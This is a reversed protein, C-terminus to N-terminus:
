CGVCSFDSASNTDTTGNRQIYDNTSGDEFSVCTNQTDKDNFSDVPLFTLNWVASGQNFMTRFGGTMLGEPIDGDGNSYCVLDMPTSNLDYSIFVIGDSSIIGPVESFVDYQNATNAAISYTTGAFCNGSNQECDDQRIRDDSFDNARDLTLLIKEGANIPVDRMRYLLIPTPSFFDYYYVGLNHLTGSSTATLEVRDESSSQAPWVQTILMNAPSSGHGEVGILGGHIFGGTADIKNEGAGGQVSFAYTTGANLDTTTTVLLLSTDNSDLSVSCDGGGCATSTVRPTDRMAWRMQITITRTGTSFAIQPTNLLANIGGAASSPAAPSTSNGSYNPTAVMGKKYTDEVQGTGCPARFNVSANDCLDSSNTSLGMNGNSTYWSGPSTGPLAKGAQPHGAPYFFREMSFTRRNASDVKGAFPPDGTGAQDILNMTGDYLRVFLASSNLDFDKTGSIKNDSTEIGKNQGKLLFYGKAPIILRGPGYHRSAVGDKFWNFEDPIPYITKESADWTIGWHSIDIARDTTNYLEIWDDTSNYSTGEYSGAWMLESIVVDGPAAVDGSPHDLQRSIPTGVDWIEQWQQVIERAVLPNTIVLMNEDNNQVANGSWNFSGTSVITRDIIITKTHLKGGHSKLGPVATHENGDERIFPGTPINLGASYLRPAALM